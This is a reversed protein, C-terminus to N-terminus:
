RDLQEQQQQAIMLNKDMNGEVTKAPFANYDQYESGQTLEYERYIVLSYSNDKADAVTVTGGYGDSNLVVTYDSGYTLPTEVDGDSITVKIAQKAKEETPDQLLCEFDFDYTYSGM